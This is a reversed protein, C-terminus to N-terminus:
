HNECENKEECTEQIENQMPTAPSISIEEGSETEIPNLISEKDQIISALVGNIFPASKDTSYIKSLELAENVAVAIPIQTYLIEYAAVLLIALDIKYIREFAFDRSYKGICSKIVDYNALVGNLLTHTFDADELSDSGCLAEYTLENPNGNVCFEFVLKFAKERAIKRSM